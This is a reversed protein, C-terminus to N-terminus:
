SRTAHQKAYGMAKLRANDEFTAGDEIPEDIGESAIETLGVVTIGKGLASVIARFEELKHPNTTALLLDM